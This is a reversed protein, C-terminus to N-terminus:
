PIASVKREPRMMMFSRTYGFQQECLKRFSSQLNYKEM